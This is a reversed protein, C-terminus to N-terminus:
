EGAWGKWYFMRMCVFREVPKGRGQHYSIVVLPLRHPEAVFNVDSQEFAHLLWQPMSEREKHEVTVWGNDGDDGDKHDKGQSPFRRASPSLTRLADLESRKWNAM